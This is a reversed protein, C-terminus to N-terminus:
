RSNTNNAQNIKAIYKGLYIAEYIINVLICDRLCKTEMYNKEKWMHLIM